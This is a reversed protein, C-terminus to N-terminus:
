GSNSLASIIPCESSADRPCNEVFSELVAEIRRLNAIKTRVETLRDEAIKSVEGCTREDFDALNLLSTAQELSFGLERCRKVFELREIHKISYLRYGNRGRSPPRIVGAKEYYRITEVGLGTREAVTGIYFDSKQSPM